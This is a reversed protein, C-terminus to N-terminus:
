YGQIWLEVCRIMLALTLGLLLVKVGVSFITYLSYFRARGGWHNAGRMSWYKGWVKTYTMCALVGDGVLVAAGFFLGNLISAADDRGALLDDWLAMLALIYAAAFIIQLAYLATLQIATPCIVLTAAIIDIAVLSLAAIGFLTGAWNNLFVDWLINEHDAVAM